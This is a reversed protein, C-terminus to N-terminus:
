SDNSMRKQLVREFVVGAAFVYLCKVSGFHRQLFAQGRGSFVFPCILKAVGQAPDILNDYNTHDELPCLREDDWSEPRTIIAHEPAWWIRWVNWGLTPAEIVIVGNGAAILAEADCMPMTRGCAALQRRLAAGAFWLGIYVYLHIGIFAVVGLGIFAAICILASKM